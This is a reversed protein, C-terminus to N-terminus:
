CFTPFCLVNNNHEAHFYSGKYAIHQTISFLSTGLKPVYLCQLNITLKRVQISIIGYGKVNLYTKDDGLLVQHSGEPLLTFSKFLKINSTMHHTAGSNLIISSTKPYQKEQQIYKCKYLSPNPVSSLSYDTVNENNYNDNDTCLTDEMNQMNDEDQQDLSQEMAM